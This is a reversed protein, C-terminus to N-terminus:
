SRSPNRLIESQWLGKALGDLDPFLTGNGIGLRELQDIIPLRAKKPIIWKKISKIDTIVSKHKTDYEDLPCWPDDQITFFSHQIGMRPSVHLPYLIKVGKLRLPKQLENIKIPRTKSVQIPLERIDNYYFKNDSQFEELLLDLDSSGTEDKKTIVWVAANKEPKKCQVAFFLAVLPNSTWDLLRTPLGHHRALFFAEWEGLSRKTEIRSLRCFRHLIDRESRIDFLIEQGVFVHKRGISPLLLYDANEQGRFYISSNRSSSSLKQFDMTLEIIDEVCTIKM